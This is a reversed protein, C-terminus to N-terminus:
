SVKVLFGDTANGALGGGYVVNRDEFCAALKNVRDNTPFTVTTSEPLTYWQYGGDLTRLIRGAPSATDHAMYGVMQSVFKIDRVQGAGNGPFAKETWSRGQNETYYLKGNATGVFWTTKTLMSVTNLVVGPAPGTVLTWGDGGNETFLVSNNEGVAVLHLNSVGDIAKLNETTANGSSQVEVSSTIDSSFYIYGGDAVIWNFSQNLSFIANPLKLAVFGSTVETWTEEDNLIDLIAAYHLSNSEASIVVLYQGVCAIGSPDENAAISTINTQGWTAGGDETFIVEAPLGPSGGASMTVAFVRDCGNSPIGCEGCQRSDCIVLDVVEQVIETSALEAPTIKGIEYYEEMSIALTEVIPAEDGPEFAGQDGTSYTTARAKGMALIKDWGRTFDLPNQCLGYHLQFDFECVAQAVRLYESLSHTMRAEINVTPLDAAGTIKGAVVFGGYRNPDGIRIPTVDGLPVSPSTIRALAKYVPPHSPGAGGEILFLRTHSALALDFDQTRTAM